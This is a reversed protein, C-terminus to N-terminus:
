CASDAGLEPRNVPLVGGSSRRLLIAKVERYPTFRRIEPDDIRDRINRASNVDAQVVRGCAAIFRDGDRRGELRRTLSSVQSTYAPNVLVLSASRQSTVTELAEALIGKAWFGMRRNFGRGWSKTRSIVSTLDEAGVVSAKDVVAHAAKFAETRLRKRTLARRRDQKKEGLNNRVIREAKAIRGAKRHKEELARLKGRAKGTVHVKDTYTQLITGFKRGHFHGDSDVLAESYGKDVGIIKSGSPRGSGKDFAYHIETFGERLVIRLNKGALDVGDGNTTTFLTIDEGHKAAIRITISLKGDVVATSFKDSRVVFQNGSRAQGHRFHKRMQRHLFNNVEWLDRKLLGYLRKAEAKDDGARRSIAQRVKQKAAAEFAKIDNLVDKATEARITGDVPLLGYLKPIDPRISPVSRGIGKLAGFRHWIDARMGGMIRAVHRLAGPQDATLTRTVLMPM